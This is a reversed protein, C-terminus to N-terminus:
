LGAAWGFARVGVGALAGLFPLWFSMFVIFVGWSQAKQESTEPSWGGDDTDSM